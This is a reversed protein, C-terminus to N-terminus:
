PVQLPTRATAEGFAQAARRGMHAIVEEMALDDRLGDSMVALLFPRGQVFFLGVDNRTGPLSGPKNAVELDEPLLRPLYSAKPTKLIRLLAERAPPQLTKGTQLHLLLEGLERPTSTNQRGAKAAAFDMMKRRLRTQHLGLGELTGNVREMGLRDMLINTAGNDSVVLMFVMLDRLSVAGGPELNAVMASGEIADRARLTHREKLRAGGAQDQRCLELAVGLKITSAAPFVEDARLAFAEGSVLDKLYLGVRGDVGQALATLDRTLGNWLPRPLATAQGLLPALALLSLVLARLSRLM